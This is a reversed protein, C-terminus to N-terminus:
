PIRRAIQRLVNATIKEKTNLIAQTRKICRIAHNIGSYGQHSNGFLRIEITNKNLWNVASYRIEKWRTHDTNAFYTERRGFFNIQDWTVNKIEKIAYFLEELKKETHKTRTVHIHIGADGEHSIDGAKDLLARLVRCLMKPPLPQSVVEVSDRYSLSGDTTIYFFGLHTHLHNERLYRNRGEIEIGFSVPVVTKRLKIPTGSM